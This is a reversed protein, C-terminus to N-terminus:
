LAQSGLWIEVPVGASGPIEEVKHLSLKADSEFMEWAIREAVHREKYAIIMRAAPALSLLNKVTRLLAPFSATNYTVDSM